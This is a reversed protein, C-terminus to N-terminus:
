HLFGETLFCFLVAPLLPLTEKILLITITEPMFSTVFHADIHLCKFWYMVCVCVVLIGTALLLVNHMSDDSVRVRDVAIKTFNKNSTFFPTENEIPNIWNNM